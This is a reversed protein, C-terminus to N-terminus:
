TIQALRLTKDPLSRLRAPGAYYTALSYRRVFLHDALKRGHYRVFLGRGILPGYKGKCQPRVTRAGHLVSRYLNLFKPGYVHQEDAKSSLVPFFIRACLRLPAFRQRTELPKRQAKAAKRSFCSREEFRGLYCRKHSKLSACPVGRCNVM